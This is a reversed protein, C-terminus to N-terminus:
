ASRGATAYHTTIQERLEHTMAVPLDVAPAHKVIEKDFPVEIDGSPLRKSGSLPILTHRQHFLGTDVRLWTPATTVEDYIVDTVTGLREGSDSVVGHGTFVPDHTQQSGEARDPPSIARDSVVLVPCLARDIVAKSVSPDVLRHLFGRHHSGVVIVDVNHSEAIECIREAPFGTDTITETPEIGAAHAADEVDAESSALDGSDAWFRPPLAYVGGFGDAAAWPVIAPGVNVALFEADPFLGGAVRAAAVSLPSDGLAVLVRTVSKGKERGVFTVDTIYGSTDFM